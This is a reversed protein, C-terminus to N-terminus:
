LGNARATSSRSTSDNVARVVFSAMATFAASSRREVPSSSYLAPFSVSGRGGSSTALSNGGSASRNPSPAFAHPRVEREVVVLLDHAGGPPAASVGDGDVHRAARPAKLEAGWSVVGGPRVDAHARDA